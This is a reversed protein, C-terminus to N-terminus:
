KTSYRGDDGLEIHMHLDKEELNSFFEKCRIMHFSAISDLYWMTGMVNSVMCSILTFYLKFQSALAEGRAERSPNKNLKKHPCKTAYNGQEHSPFCKIKSLDKKGNNESFELKRQAKKGKGVLSFNEEEEVKSTVGYIINRQIKEQVLDSWIIKLNPLKDRGNISDLYSHQYKPLGILALSVLELSPINEGVGGIEDQSQTFRSLYHPITENKQMCIKKLKDRLALKRADMGNESLETLTKWM